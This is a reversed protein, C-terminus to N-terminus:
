RPVEMTESLFVSATFFLVATVLVKVTFMLLSHEQCYFSIWGRTVDFRPISAIGVFIVLIFMKSKQILTILFYCISSLLLIYLFSSCISCLIDAPTIFFGRELIDEGGAFLYKVIRIIAASLSYTVAGFVGYTILFAINSINSTINNSVFSFDISKWERLGLNIIVGIICILTFIFVQFSSLRHINISYVGNGFSIQGGMNFITALIGIIQVCIM